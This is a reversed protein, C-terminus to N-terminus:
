NWKWVRAWVNLRWGSRRAHFKRMNQIGHRGERERASAKRSRCCLQFQHPCYTEHSNPQALLCCCRFSVSFFSYQWHIEDGEKKKQSTTWIHWRRTVDFTLASTPARAPTISLYFHQKFVRSLLFLNLNLLKKRTGTAPRTSSVIKGASLFKVRLYMCLENSYNLDTRLICETAKSKREKERAGEEKLNENDNSSRARRTTQTFYPTFNRNVIWSEKEM